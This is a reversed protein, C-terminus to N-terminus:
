KEELELELDRASDTDEDEDDDTDDYSEDYSDAPLREDRVRVVAGEEALLFGDRQDKRERLEDVDAAGFLFGQRSM